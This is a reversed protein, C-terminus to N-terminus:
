KQLFSQAKSIAQSRNEVGLITIVRGMHYKITQESMHMRVAVQKYPIGEAVMQLIEWQLPTIGEPKNAQPTAEALESEQNSIATQLVYSLSNFVRTARGLEDGHHVQLEVNLEGSEVKEIGEVLTRIPKDVIERVFLYQALIMAFSTGLVIIAVPSMANHLATRYGAYHDILAGPSDFRDPWDDVRLFSAGLASNCLSTDGCVLASLQPAAEFEADAVYEIDRPLDIYNMQIEDNSYLVVQFSYLDEPARRSPLGDWTVTVADATMKLYVAGEPQGAQLDLYVPTIVRLHRYDSAFEGLSPPEHFAVAGNDSIYIQTYDEGFFTFRFPLDVLELVDKLEGDRLDLDEGFTPDYALDMETVEYGMGAPTFRYSRQTPLMPQYSESIFPSLMWGLVSMGIMVVALSSTVVRERFRFGEPLPDVYFYVLMFLTAMIGLSSALYYGVAGFSAGPSTYITNIWALVVPIIFVSFQYRYSVAFRDKMGLIRKLLSRGDGPELSLARGLFSFGLTILLLILAVDAGLHRWESDGTRLYLGTRYIGYGVEVLAYVISLSLLWWKPKLLRRDEYPHAFVYFFAFVLGLALIPNQAFVAFLRQRPLLSAEFFLALLFLVQWVLGLFFFLSGRRLDQREQRRHVRWVYFCLIAGFISQALFAISAPTLYFDVAAACYLSVFTLPDLQVIRYKRIIENPM